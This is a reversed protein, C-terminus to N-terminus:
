DLGHLGETLATLFARISRTTPRCVMVALSVNKLHSRPVARRMAAAGAAPTPLVVVSRQITPRVGGRLM